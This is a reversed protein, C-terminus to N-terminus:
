IRRPSPAPFGSTSHHGAAAVPPRRGAAPEEVETDEAPRGSTLM